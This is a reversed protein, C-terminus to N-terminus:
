QVRESHPYRVAKLSRIVAPLGEEFFRPRVTKNSVYHFAVTDPTWEVSGIKYTNSPLPRWGFEGAAQAVLAQEAFYHVRWEPKYARLMRELFHFQEDGFRPMVVMGSNLDREIRTVCRSDIEGDKPPAIVSVWDFEERFSTLEPGPTDFSALLEEPRHFFLVDPDVIVVTRARESMHIQLLKPAFVHARFERLLQFDSGALRQEMWRRGDEPLVFRVEPFFQRFRAMDDPVLSGDSHVVLGAKGDVWRLISILAWIGMTTHDRSCQMHFELDADAPTAIPTIVGDRLLAELTRAARHNLRRLRWRYRLERHGGDLCVYKAYGLRKRVAGFLGQRPETLGSLTRVRM